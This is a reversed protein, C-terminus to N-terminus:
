TVPTVSREATSLLLRDHRVIKDNCYRGMPGRNARHVAYTALAARQRVLVALGALEDDSECWDRKGPQSLALCARWFVYYMHRHVLM